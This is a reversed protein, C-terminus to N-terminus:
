DAEGAVAKALLTKGTGPPGILLVGRPPRAGLADHRKPDKLYEVVEVLADRAEDIGAVHEFRTTVHRNRIRRNAIGGGSFHRMLMVGIVVIVLAGILLNVLGGIIHLSRDEPDFAIEVG